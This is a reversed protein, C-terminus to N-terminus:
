LYVLKWCWDNIEMQCGNLALSRIFLIKNWDLCQWVCWVYPNIEIYNTGRSVYKVRGNYTLIFHALAFVSCLALSCQNLGMVVNISKRAAPIQYNKMRTLSCGFQVSM